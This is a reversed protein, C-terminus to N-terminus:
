GQADSVFKKSLYDRGLKTLLNDRNIQLDLDFTTDM